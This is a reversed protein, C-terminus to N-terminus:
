LDVLSLELADERAAPQEEAVFGLDGLRAVVHGGIHAFVRDQHAPAAVALNPREEIGAAVAAHLHAAGIAAIAEVSVDDNFLVGGGGNVQTDIFGPLLWGGELTREVYSAPRSGRPVIDVIRDGEILLAGDDIVGEPQVIVAGVLAIRSM